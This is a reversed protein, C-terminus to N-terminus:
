RQEVVEVIEATDVGVRIGVTSGVIVKVGVSGCLACVLLVDLEDDVAVFGRAGDERPLEGVFGTTTGAIRADDVVPGRIDALVNLREIMPMHDAQAVFAPQGRGLAVTGVSVAAVFADVEDLVEGNGHEVVSGEVKVGALPPVVIGPAVFPDLLVIGNAFRGTFRDHQLLVANRVLADPLIHLRLPLLRHQLLRAHSIIREPLKSALKRAPRIRKIAIRDIVVRAFILHQTILM